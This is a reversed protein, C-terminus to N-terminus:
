KEDFEMKKVLTDLSVKEKAQKLLTELDTENSNLDQRLMNVIILKIDESIQQPLREYNIYDQIIINAELIKNVKIPNTKVEELRKKSIEKVKKLIFTENNEINTTIGTIKQFVDLMEKPLSNDKMKELRTKIDKYATIGYILTILMSIAGPAVISSIIGFIGLLLLNLRKIKDQKFKEELDENILKLSEEIRSKLYKNKQLLEYLYYEQHEKDDLAEKQIEFAENSVENLIKIGKQKKSIEEEM